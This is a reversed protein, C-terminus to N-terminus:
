KVLSIENLPWYRMFVEGKIMSQDVFGFIRSDKSILRNDGLVFYKGDPVVYSFDNTFTLARDAIDQFRTSYAYETQLNDDGFKEKYEALYTEDVEEGNLTLVDNKMQVKDGPMGIVRKVALKELDDPEQTTVIDFREIKSLQFTFLKQGDALTPDMSHGKVSVPTVVFLRIILLLVVFFIFTGWNKM